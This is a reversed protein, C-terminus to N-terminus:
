AHGHPEECPTPNRWALAMPALAADDIRHHYDAGFLDALIQGTLVGVFGMTERASTLRGAEWKRLLSAVRTPEWLGAGAVTAPALREKVLRRGADSGLCALDPARYPLKPRRVIAPPLLDAVAARLIDKEALCPLKVSAPLSGALEAVHVDLFPFRGEVSNGMLMRDGQSSLLYGALFTTMELYQARALPGWGAFGAPLGAALRAEPASAHFRAVADEALFTTMMGTNHWRPRHSFFPEDPDDLGHGYFQSLIQPSSQALYPYLRTLLRARAQSRPDRAWFRRVKTERFINYGAFVEDAGEGTLVVKYGADHVLQSLVHLPAPATRLIPMEAHWVVDVLREAIADGDVRVSRHDTGLHASMAHQWPSEDFDGDVFGVSFTELRRDTTSHILAATASSDLGGSLYAGVPVDARLRIVSAAELADRVQRAMAAREVRDVFRRDEDAPLFDPTWYRRVALCAPLPAPGATTEPDTGRCTAVHGPPLQAVGSFVSAPPLTVWYTFVEALRAPDLTRALGPWALIAKVESGFLLVDGHRAVFLPRIGFRDRALFLCRERRDWIACAFQGNFRDVCGEGWEAFAQVLVETDSRTRFVRGRAALEDRLEPYNFIEGNFTVWYREDPTSLPQQGGALDIISLRAHGLFTTDDRWAGFEDPGRHRMAGIMREPTGPALELRGRLAMAGCIGCM